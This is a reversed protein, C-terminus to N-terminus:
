KSDSLGPEYRHFGQANANTLSDLGGTLHLDLALHAFGPSLAL